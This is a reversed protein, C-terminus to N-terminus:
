TASSLNKDILSVEAYTDVGTVVRHGGVCGVFARVKRGKSSESSVPFLLSAQHVDGHMARKRSHLKTIPVNERRLRERGTDTEM